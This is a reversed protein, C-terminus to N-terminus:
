MVMRIPSDLGGVPGCRRLDCQPLSAYVARELPTPFQAPLHGGLVPLRQYSERLPPTRQDSRAFTIQSSLTIRLPRNSVRVTRSAVALVWTRASLSLTISPPAVVKTVPPEPVGGVGTM